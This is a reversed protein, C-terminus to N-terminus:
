SSNGTLALFVLNIDKLFIWMIFSFKSSLQHLYVFVKMWDQYFLPAIFSFFYWIQSQKCISIIRIKQKNKLKIGFNYDNGLVVKDTGQLFWTMLHIFYNLTTHKFLVISNGLKRNQVAMRLKTYLLFFIFNEQLGPSFCTISNTKKSLCLVHAKMKSGSWRAQWIDNNYEIM